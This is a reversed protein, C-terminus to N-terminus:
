LQVLLKKVDLVCYFFFESDCNEEVETRDSDTEDGTVNDYVVETGRMRADPSGHWTDFSGIGISASKLGADGQKLSSGYTRDLIV